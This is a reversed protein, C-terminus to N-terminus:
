EVNRQLQSPQTDPLYTHLKQLISNLDIPKGMHDNMGAALCKDVDERFVNATMAVIPIQRAWPFPLARIRRTAEYGDMEPMQIDMFIISYRDPAASFMRVAAIGHEACDITLGTPELLTLVIERNLEMDEVLLINHGGAFSEHEAPFGDGTNEQVLGLHEGICDVIVSPFLPKHLFADVGASKAESELHGWETCSIMIVIPSASRDKKIRRTLEMGDMGPMECDIFYIPYPRDQAIKDLAVQGSLATDCTFGIRDAIERFCELVDPEDDVVLTRIETWNLDSVAGKRPATSGRGFRATFSFVTGQNPESEVWIKGGVMEIIHKSISLGLGTGGFKRTTSSEAQQFSQFLRVQQEESIGIGTDRVEIRLAVHNDDEGDHFTNLQISGGEPTFKVANSLLNTIVQALRQEDGVLVEPINKDIHVNFRQRREEVRFHIVNVVRQLMKEFSFEMSSMEFKGAEIKSMDLVDNIVGLLHTSAGEIKEFAYNKKALDLATKGIATMGIIANMPTRMEHSMNALFVSKAKNAMEAADKTKMIDTLDHFLMMAGEAAGTEGLMPTIYIKYIHVAELGPFLLESDLVMIKHERVAQSYNSQLDDLQSSSVFNGFVKTFLHGGILGFHTINAATLFARSCHMFRGEQDFLLIIDPSNELLLKMNREMKGQQLALIASMNTRAALMAKNRQLLSELSRVQRKLSRNELLLDTSKAAQETRIEDAM